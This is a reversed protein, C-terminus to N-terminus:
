APRLVGREGTTAGSAELTASSRAGLGGDDERDKEHLASSVEETHSAGLKGGIVRARVSGLLHGQVDGDAHPQSASAEFYEGKNLAHMLWELLPMSCM